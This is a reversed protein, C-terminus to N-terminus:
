ARSASMSTAALRASATEAKASGISKPRMMSRMVRACAGPAVKVHLSRSGSTDAQAAKPRNEIPPAM